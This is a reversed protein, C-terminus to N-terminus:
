PQYGESLLYDRLQHRATFLRSKVIREPLQLVDGIERYTLGNYHRLIIVSRHAPNLKMIAKSLVSDREEDDFREGPSRDIGGHEPEFSRFRRNFRISNLTENITIRYLWSFFKFKANFTHLKEYAKVFVAQTIEESDDYRHVLRFVTNFVVRQYRKVIEGFANIEGDM